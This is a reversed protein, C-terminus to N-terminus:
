RLRVDVVGAVSNAVVQAISRDLPTDPGAIEAVGDHVEVKWEPHEVSRLVDAIEAALVDDDRARVRVVDSRSVMGVLHGDGDVVPLSKLRASTMLDVVDALDAGARVSIAPSSMVEAVLRAPSRASDDPLLEHARVDHAFGDRILDAETVIGCIRGHADVVPLASVHHEAALVVAEKVSWEGTVTLPERTMLDQVLV